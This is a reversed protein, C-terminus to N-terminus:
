VWIPISAALKILPSNMFWTSRKQVKKSHFNTITWKCELFRPQGFWHAWEHIKPRNHRKLELNIPNTDPLKQRPRSEIPLGTVFSAFDAIKPHVLYLVKKWMNIQDCPFYSCRFLFFIRSFGSFIEFKWLFSVKQLKCCLWLLITWSLLMRKSWLLIFKRWLIWMRWWLRM